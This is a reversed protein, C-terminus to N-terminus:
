DNVAAEATCASGNRGKVQQWWWNLDQERITRLLMYLRQHQEPLPMMMGYRIKEAMDRSHYPNALLAGQLQRAAGAFPSLLLVGRDRVKAAVYEKAVLNLGDRLPTVLALDAALYHAVLEQQDLPRYLYRVPVQYDNTYLGNIEGVLREVEQRLSRYAPTQERTPVAVQVLTVKGRLEPYSDLLMRFAQLRQPIGKTYDLRDVGLLIYESQLHHRIRSARERIERRGALEAYEEWDIGIPAAFVQVKRGAWFVTSSLYDVRARLIEEVAQLFNRVYGQTHFGIRDSALLGRLIAEAWPLTAFIEAAPFPIHWFYSITAAPRQRRVLAPLLTLHYDHIWILDALHIYKLVETAFKNNVEIYSHWYDEEFHVRDLFGHALPWLISNAFGDYYGKIERTTLLVEALHYSGEGEPLSFLHGPGQGCRGGWAVWIGGERKLIPEVASVLGSVAPELEV